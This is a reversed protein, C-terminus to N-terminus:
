YCGKWFSLLSHLPFIHLVSSKEYEYLICRTNKAQIMNKRFTSFCMSFHWIIVLAANHCKLVFFCLWPFLMDPWEVWYILLYNRHFRVGAKLSWLLYTSVIISNVEKQKSTPPPLDNCSLSWCQYHTSEYNSNHCPNIGKWTTFKVRSTMTFLQGGKM